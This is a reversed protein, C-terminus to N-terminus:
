TGYDEHVHCWAITIGTTVVGTNQRCQDTTTPVKGGNISYVSSFTVNVGM